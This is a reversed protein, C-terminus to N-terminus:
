SKAPLSENCRNLTLLGFFGALLIFTLKKFKM